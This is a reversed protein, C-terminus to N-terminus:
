AEETPLDDGPDVNGRPPPPVSQTAGLARKTRMWWADDDTNPTAKVFFGIVMQLLVWGAAGIATLEEWHELWFDLSKM